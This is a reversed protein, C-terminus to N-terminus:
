EGRLMELDTITSAITEIDEFMSEGKEGAQWEDSRENFYQQMEEQVQGLSRIAVSLLANWRRRAPINELAPSPPVIPPKQDLRAKLRARHAAQREANTKPTRSEAEAILHIISEANKTQAKELQQQLALTHEIQAQIGTETNGM